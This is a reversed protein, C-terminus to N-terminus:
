FSNPLRSATTQERKIMHLEALRSLGVVYDNRVSPVSDWRTPSSSMRRIRLSRNYPHHPHYVLLSAQSYTQKWYKRNEM